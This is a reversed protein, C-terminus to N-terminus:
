NQAAAAEVYVDMQQGAFLPLNKRDFQFLVQLVRTDVRESSSGTLSTKPVVYPEFRVFRMDASIANNGVAYAKARAGAKIRWAEHEDIDVRVRLHDTDGFLIMPSAPNAEAFEGLHVKVQLCQGGFPARVVLRELDTQTSSLQAEAQRVDAKAVEIDPQAAGAKMQALNAQATKLAADAEAVSYRRRSMEDASVARKDPLNERLTLQAQLDALNAAANQVTAELPAIDVPRPLSAVKALRAQSSALLSEQVTLQAKIARDDLQFLPDGAEVHDGVKVFVKTVLGAVPSGIDVNESESEILGSGSVFSPFPSESPDKVPQAVPVPRNDARVIYLAFVFGAIAVFPLTYKRIM